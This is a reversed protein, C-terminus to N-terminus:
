YLPLVRLDAGSDSPPRLFTMPHRYGSLQFSVPHTGHLDVNFKGTGFDQPCQFVAPILYGFAGSDQFQQIHTLFPIM